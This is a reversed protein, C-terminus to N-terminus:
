SIQIANSIRFAAHHAQELGAHGIRLKGFLANGTENGNEAAIRRISAEFQEQSIDPQANQSARRLEERMIRGTSTKKAALNNSGTTTTVLKFLLFDPDASDTIETYEFTFSEATMKVHAVYEDVEWGSYGNSNIAIDDIRPQGPLIEAIKQVQIAYMANALIKALVPSSSIMRLDNM